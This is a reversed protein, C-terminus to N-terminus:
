RGYDDDFREIDDEGFYDGLQIEAFVLTQEASTNIMRHKTGRSISFMQGPAAQKSEDGIVAEGYGNIVIWYEDRKEHSQLSISQKPLIYIVKSQFMDNLVMSKYYGWPKVSIEHDLEISDLRDYDFSLSLPENMLLMSNIVHRTMINKLRNESDLVPIFGIKRDYFINIVKNFDDTERVYMFRTNAIKEVIDDHGMGNLIGRRIDGDTLTGTVRKEEDTVIVYKVKNRDMHRLVDILSSNRCVIFKEVTM